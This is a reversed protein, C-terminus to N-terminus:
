EPIHIMSSGHKEPLFHLDTLGSIASWISIPLSHLMREASNRKIIDYFYAPVLRGDFGLSEGDHLADKIFDSLKPVGQEGMKMLTIGTGQLQEDAQLFYRGDTWLYAGDKTIVMEGNSGDFGSLFERCKFYDSIYESMHFDGGPVYYVDTGAALMENRLADLRKVYEQSTVRKM